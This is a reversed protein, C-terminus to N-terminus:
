KKCLCAAIHKLKLIYGIAGTLAMIVAHNDMGFYSEAIEGSKDRAEGLVQMIKMELTERLSRGPLAELEENRYAEILQEVKEEAKLLLEEIRDQAERPIEEDATSTTFGRRMISSIALKTASDLFERAKDTGYEKVVSDLIKGSFAGYAKEDMAGSKLEGNEIVVYADNQCEERLCEDCKRCIEAKYVMNLNKPLLLSFIEKGTWDQNKKKPLPLDSKKLMQFVEDERFTSGERTLLYAGSIHDHIGGIIPGGFRPSLIHEQVRMLSKAEARSEETQFVHMNM